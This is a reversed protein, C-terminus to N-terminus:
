CWRDPPRERRAGRQRPRVALHRHAGAWGEWPSRCAPPAGRKPLTRGHHDSLDASGDAGDGAVCRAQRSTSAHEDLEHEQEEDVGYEAEGHAM